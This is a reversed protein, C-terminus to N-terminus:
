ENLGETDYKILAQKWQCILKWDVIYKIPLIVDFGFVLQVQSKYIIIHYMTHIVFIDAM